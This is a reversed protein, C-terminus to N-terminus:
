REGSFESGQKKRYKRGRTAGAGEILDQKELLKLLRYCKFPGLGTVQQCSKNDIYESTELFSLIKETHIDAAHSQEAKMKRHTQRIRGSGWGGLLVGAAQLAVRELENPLREILHQAKLVMAILLLLIWFVVIIEGRRFRLVQEQPVRDTEPASTDTWRLFEKYGAYAALFGLYVTSIESIAVITNTENLGFLRAGGPLMTVVDWLIYGAQVITILLTLYFIIELRVSQLDNAHVVTTNSGM